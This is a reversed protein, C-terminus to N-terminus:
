KLYEPQIYVGHKELKLATKLNIQFGTIALKRCLMTDNFTTAHIIYDWPRRSARLILRSRELKRGVIPKHYM